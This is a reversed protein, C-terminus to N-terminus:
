TSDAPAEWAHGIVEPASAKFQYHTNATLPPYNVGVVNTIAISSNHRRVGLQGAELKFRDLVGAALGRQGMYRFGRVVM